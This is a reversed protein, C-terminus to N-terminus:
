TFAGGQNRTPFDRVQAYRHSRLTATPAEGRGPVGPGSM